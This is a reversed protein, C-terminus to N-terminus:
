TVSVQGKPRPGALSMHRLDTGRLPHFGGYPTSITSMHFDRCGGNGVVLNSIIEMRHAPFRLPSRILWKWIHVTMEAAM